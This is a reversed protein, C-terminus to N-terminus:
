PVQSIEREPPASSHLSYQIIHRHGLRLLFCSCAAENSGLFVEIVMGVAVDISSRGRGRERVCTIKRKGISECDGGEKESQPPGDWM